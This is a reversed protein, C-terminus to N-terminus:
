MCTARCNLFCLLYCEHGTRYTGSFGGNRGCAIVAIVDNTEALACFATMYESCELDILVDVMSMLFSRRYFRSDRVMSVM